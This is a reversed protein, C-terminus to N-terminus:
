AADRNFDGGLQTCAYDLEAFRDEFRDRWDQWTFSVRGPDMLSVWTVPEIGNLIPWPALPQGQPTVKPLLQERETALAMLDAKRIADRYIYMPTVVNFREAVAMAIPKEFGTWAVGVRQKPPTSLDNTIAEHADHLLAAKLGLAGLRLEREAIEAVLLSHEAVSYPRCTAGTFRNIIALHHAIVAPTLNMLQDRDVRALPLQHGNAMVMFM